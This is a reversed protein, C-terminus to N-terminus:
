EDELSEDMYKGCKPCYPTGFCLTEFKLKSMVIEFSCRECKCKM